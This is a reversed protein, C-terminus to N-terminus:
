TIERASNKEFMFGFQGSITANNIEGVHLTSPFTTICQQLSFVTKMRPKLIDTTYNDFPGNVQEKCNDSFSIAFSPLLSYLRLIHFSVEEFLMARKKTLAGVFNSIM